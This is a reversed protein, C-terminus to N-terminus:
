SAGALSILLSDHWDSWNWDVFFANCVQIGMLLNLACPHNQNEKDWPSKPRAMAVEPVLFWRVSHWWALRVGSLCTQNMNSKEKSSSMKALVQANTFAWLKWKWSVDWDRWINGNSGHGAGRLLQTSCCSGGVESSPPQSLFTVTDRLVFWSICLLYVTICQGLIVSRFFERLNHCQDHLICM